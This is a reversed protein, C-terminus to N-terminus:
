DLSHSFAAAMDFESADDANAGSLRVQRLAIWAALLGVFGLCFVAGYAVTHAESLTLMLDRVIGGGAVGAGRALTM